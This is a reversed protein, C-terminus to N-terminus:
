SSSTDSHNLLQVALGIPEQGRLNSDQGRRRKQNKSQNELKIFDVFMAHCAFHTIADDDVHQNDNILNGLKILHHNSTTSTDRNAIKM